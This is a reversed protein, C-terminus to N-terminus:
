QLYFSKLKFKTTNCYSVLSFKKTVAISFRKASRKIDLFTVRRPDLIFYTITTDLQHSFSHFIYCNCLKNCKRRTTIETLFYKVNCPRNHNRCYFSRNKVARGYFYLDGFRGVSFILMNIKKQYIKTTILLNLLIHFKGKIIGIM